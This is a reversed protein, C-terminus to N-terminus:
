GRFEGSSSTRTVTGCLRGRRKRHEHFFQYDGAAKIGGTASPAPTQSNANSPNFSELLRVSTGPDIAALNAAPRLLATDVRAAASNPPVM